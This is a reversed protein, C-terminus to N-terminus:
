ENEAGAKKYERRIMEQYEKMFDCKDCDYMKENDCDYKPCDSMAKGHWGCSDKDCDVCLKNEKCDALRMQNGREGSVVM